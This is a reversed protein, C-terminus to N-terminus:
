VRLTRRVRRAWNRRAKWVEAKLAMVKVKRGVGRADGSDWRPQNWKEPPRPSGEERTPRAVAMIPIMPRGNCINM